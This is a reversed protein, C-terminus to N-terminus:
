FCSQGQLGSVVDIQFDTNPVLDTGHVLQNQVIQFSKTIRPLIRLYANIKYVLCHLEKKKKELNSLM